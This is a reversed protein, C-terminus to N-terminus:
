EPVIRECDEDGGHVHDLECHEADTRDWREVPVSPGNYHDVFEGTEFDSLVMYESLAFWVGRVARRADTIDRHGEGQALQEGNKGLLRWRVEGAEDTYYEIM